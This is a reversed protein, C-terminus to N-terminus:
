VPLVILCIITRRNPKICKSNRKEDITSIEKLLTVHNKLPSIQRPLNQVVNIEGSLCSQLNLDKSKEKSLAFCIM